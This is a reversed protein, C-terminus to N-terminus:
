KSPLGYTISASKEELTGINFSFYEPEDSGSDGAGLMYRKSGDMETINELNIELGKSEAYDKVANYVSESDEKFTFQVSYSTIDDETITSAMQLAASDPIPFDTPFGEPIETGEGSKSEFQGDDTDMKMTMNGEEDSEISMGGEEGDTGEVDVNVKGDKLDGVDITTKEGDEGDITFKGCGMLLVGLVGIMLLKMAYRKM